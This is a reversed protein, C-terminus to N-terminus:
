RFAPGRCLRFSPSLTHHISVREIHIIHDDRFSVIPMLEEDHGGIGAIM